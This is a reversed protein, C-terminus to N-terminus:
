FTLQDENSFLPRVIRNKPYPNLWDNCGPCGFSSCDFKSAYTDGSPGPGQLEVNRPNQNRHDTDGGGIKTIFFNWGQNFDDISINDSM